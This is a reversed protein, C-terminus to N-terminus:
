CGTQSLTRHFLAQQAHGPKKRLGNIEKALDLAKRPSLLAPRTPTALECRDQLWGVSCPGWGVTGTTGM